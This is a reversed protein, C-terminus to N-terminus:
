QVQQTEKNLTLPALIAAKKKSEVTALETLLAATEETYFLVFLQYLM